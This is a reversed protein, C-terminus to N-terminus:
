LTRAYKKAKRNKLVGLPGSHQLGRGRRRKANLAREKDQKKGAKQAMTKGTVHDRKAV